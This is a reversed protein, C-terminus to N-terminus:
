GPRSGYSIIRGVAAIKVVDGTHPAHIMMGNGIYLGVHDSGGSGRFVLDGPELQDIPVKPFMSYQSGSYHPMSIGAAKYAAMTLGSCDYSNPGTAAYVYPKGIQQRAFEIAIAAKPSPAPLNGPLQANGTNTPKATTKKQAQAQAAKAKAAERQAILASLEGKTQNLLAQQSANAAELQKKQAALAKEQADIDNLQDQLKAKKDALNEKSIELQTVALSDSGNVLNAYSDKRKSNLPASQVEDEESSSTYLAVARKQVRDNIAKNEAEAAEIETQAAAVDNKLSALKLQTQNYSESLATIKDGNSEIQNSIEAAKKKKDDIPSAFTVTTFSLSVLVVLVVGTIRWSHRGHNKNNM